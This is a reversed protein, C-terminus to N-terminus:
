LGLHVTMYNGEDIGRFKYEKIQPLQKASQELEKFADADNLYSWVLLLGGDSGYVELVKSQDVPYRKFIRIM